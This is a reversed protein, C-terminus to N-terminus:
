KGAQSKVKVTVDEHCISQSNTGSSARKSLIKMVGAKSNKFASSARLSTVNQSDNLEIEQVKTGRDSIANSDVLSTVVGSTKFHDIDEVKKRAYEAIKSHKTSTQKLYQHTAMESMRRNIKPSLSKKGDGSIDNDAYLVNKGNSVYM